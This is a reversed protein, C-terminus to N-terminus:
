ARMKKSDIKEWKASMAPPRGRDLSDSSHNMGEYQGDRCGDEDRM